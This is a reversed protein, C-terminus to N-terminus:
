AGTRRLPKRGLASVAAFDSQSINRSRESKRVYASPNTAFLAKLWDAPLDDGAHVVSGSRDIWKAIEATASPEEGTVLWRTTGGTAGPTFIDIVTGEATRTVNMFRLAEIALVKRSGGDISARPSTRRWGEGERTMEILRPTAISAFEISEPTEGVIVAKSSPKRGLAIPGKDFDVPEFPVGYVPKSPRVVYSNDPSYRVNIREYQDKSQPLAAFYDNGFALWLAKGSLAIRDVRGDKRIGEIEYSRSSVLYAEALETSNKFKAFDKSFVLERLKGQRMLESVSMSEALIQKGTRPITRGIGDGEFRKRAAELEETTLGHERLRELLREREALREHEVPDFRGLDEQFALAMAPALPILGAVRPNTTVASAALFVLLPVTVLSRHRRPRTDTTFRGPGVRVTM